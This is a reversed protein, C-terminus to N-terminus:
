RNGVSHPALIAYADPDHSDYPGPNILVMPDFSRDFKVPVGHVNTDKCGFKIIKVPGYNRSIDVEFVSKAVQGCRYSLVYKNGPHVLVHPDYMDSGSASNPRNFWTARAVEGQLIPPFIGQDVVANQVLPPIAPGLIALAAFIAALVISTKPIRQFLPYLLRGVFAVAAGVVGGFLFVIWGMSQSTAIALIIAVAFVAGAYTFAIRLLSNMRGVVWRELPYAVALIVAAIVLACLAWSDLQNLLVATVGMAGNAWELQSPLSFYLFPGIFILCSIAFATLFRTLFNGITGWLGM